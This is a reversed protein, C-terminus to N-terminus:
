SVPQQSHRPRAPSPPAVVRQRPIHGACTHPGHHGSRNNQKDGSHRNHVVPVPSPPAQPRWRRRVCFHTRLTTHQLRSPQHVLICPRLLLSQLAHAETDGGPLNQAQEPGVAGAFGSQELAESAGDRRVRAPHPDTTLQQAGPRPPQAPPPQAVRPLLVRQLGPQRHPLVEAQKSGQPPHRWVLGPARHVLHEQPVVRMCLGMPEAAAGAAPQAHRQRQQPRRPDRHQVLGRRGHIHRHLPYDPIGQSPDSLLSSCRQQNGGM